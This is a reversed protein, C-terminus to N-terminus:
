IFGANSKYELIYAGRRKELGKLYIKLYAESSGDESASWLQDAEANTKCNKRLELWATGKGEAIHALQQSKAYYEESVDNIKQILTEAM